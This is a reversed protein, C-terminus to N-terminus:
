SSRHFACCRSASATSPASSAASRRLILPVTWILAATRAQPSATVLIAASNMVWPVSLDIGGGVIVMTQGLAVIGTFAAVTICRRSM